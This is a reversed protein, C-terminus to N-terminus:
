DLMDRYNAHSPGVTSTIAGRAKGILFGRIPSAAVGHRGHVIWDSGGDSVSEYSGCGVNRLFYAQAILDAEHQDIGDSPRVQELLAAPGPPAPAVDSCAPLLSVALLLVRCVSM